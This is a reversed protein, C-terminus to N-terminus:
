LLKVHERKVRFRDKVSRPRGSELALRKGPTQVVRRHKVVQRSPVHRQEPDVGAHTEGGNEKLLIASFGPLSFFTSGREIILSKRPEGGTSHLRTGFAQSYLAHPAEPASMESPSVRPSM